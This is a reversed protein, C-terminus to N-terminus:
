ADKYATTRHAIRGGTHFEKIIKHAEKERSRLDRKNYYYMAELVKPDVFSINRISERIYDTDNWYKKLDLVDKKYIKLDTNVTEKIDAWEKM